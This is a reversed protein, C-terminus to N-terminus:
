IKSSVSIMATSRRGNGPQGHLQQAKRAAAQQAAIRARASQTRNREAKGM